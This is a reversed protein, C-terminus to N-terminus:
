EFHCFGRLFRDVQRVLRIGKMKGSAQIPSCIIVMEIANWQLM